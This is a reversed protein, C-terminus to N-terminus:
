AVTSGSRSAFQPSQDPFLAQFIWQSACRADVAFEQLEAERDTLRGHGLVHRAAWRIGILAPLRKEVIVHVEGCRDIEEDDGGDRELYEKHQEDQAMFAPADYM